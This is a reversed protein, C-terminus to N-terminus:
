ETREEENHDPGLKDFAQSIAKLMYEPAPTSAQRAKDLSRQLRRREYNCDYRYHYETPVQPDYAGSCQSCNVFGCHRCIESM